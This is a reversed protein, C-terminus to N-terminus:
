LRKRRSGQNCFSQQVNEIIIDVVESIEMWLSINPTLFATWCRISSPLSLLDQFTHPFQNQSSSNHAIISTEFRVAGAFQEQSSPSEWTCRYRMFYYYVICFSVFNCLIKSQCPDSTSRSEIRNKYWDAVLDGWCTHLLAQVKWINGM